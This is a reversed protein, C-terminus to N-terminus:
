DYVVLVASVGYDTKKKTKQLAIAREGGQLFIFLRSEWDTESPLPMRFKQVGCGYPLGSGTLPHLISVDRVSHARLM